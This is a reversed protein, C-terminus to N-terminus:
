RRGGGFFSGFQAPSPAGANIRDRSETQWVGVRRAIDVSQQRYWETAARQLEIDSAGEQMRQELLNLGQSRILSMIESERAGAQRKEISDQLSLGAQFGQLGQSIVRFAVNARNIDAGARVNEAQARLALNARERQERLQERRVLPETLQSLIAERYSLSDVSESFLAGAERQLNRSLEEVAVVENQAAWMLELRMRADSLGVLQEARSRAGFAEFMGAVTMGLSSLIPLFGGVGAGTGATVGTGLGAQFATESVARTSAMTTGSGILIDSVDPV